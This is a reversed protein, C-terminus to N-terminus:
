TVDYKQSRNKSTVFNEMRLGNDNSIEHLNENGVPPKFM